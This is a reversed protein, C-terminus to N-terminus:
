TLTLKLVNLPQCMVFLQLDCAWVPNEPKNVISRDYEM